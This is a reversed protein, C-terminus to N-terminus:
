FLVESIKKILSKNIHLSTIKGQIVQSNLNTAYENLFKYNKPNFQSKKQDQEEDAEEEYISSPLLDSEELKREVYDFIADYNIQLNAIVDRLFIDTEGFLSLFIHELGIYKHDYKNSLQKASSFVKRTISSLKSRSASQSNRLKPKNLTFLCAKEVLDYSVEFQDFADLIQNNPIKLFALLLHVNNLQYYELDTAIKHAEKILKQARPTLNYNKM